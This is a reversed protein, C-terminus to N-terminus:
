HEEIVTADILKKQSYKEGDYECFWFNGDTHQTICERITYPFLGGEIITEGMANFYTSLGEPLKASVIDYPTEPVACKIDACVATKEHALTGYIAYFIITNKEDATLAPINGAHSGNIKCKEM